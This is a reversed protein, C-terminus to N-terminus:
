EESLELIAARMLGYDQFRGSINPDICKRVFSSWDAPVSEANSIMEAREFYAGKAMQEVPSSSSLRTPLRGTLCQLALVGLSFIDSTIAARYGSYFREPAMYPITGVLSDTQQSNQNKFNNELQIHLQSSIRSIGWDSLVVSRGPIDSQLMNQPKIDLHVVRKESWAYNLAAVCDLLVGKVAKTSLRKATSLLTHLSGKQRWQAIAATHFDIMGIKLLQLISPHFLSLWIELESLLLAQPVEPKFLKAAMLQPHSLDYTPETSQLLYVIGMGGEHVERVIYDFEDVHIWEGPAYIPVVPSSSM